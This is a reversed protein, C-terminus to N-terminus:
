RRKPRNTGNSRAAIIRRAEREGTLFAGHVTARYLEHTHEGAHLLRSGSPKALTVHDQSSSNVAAFSYAGLSFPDSNWGTRIARRPATASSGFITKLIPTIEQILQAETLSEVYAGQQGLGFTVLCNFDSFTRYNMFYNFRGRVPSQWGFYQTDTPWFAKDFIMFVKNIQGMGLVNISAKKEASLPPSIRVRNAKHVGLPLTEICYDSNFTMGGATVVVGTDSHSIATVQTNLRIDIGKALLEPIAKYGNPLIVDKGPYKSDDSYNRASLTELWGGSDFELDYSLHFLSLLDTLVTPDVIGLATALSEDPIARKMRTAVAALSAEFKKRGAGFTSETVENGSVGTVTISDDNTIFTRAKAEAALTAIPNGGDPGHIWGAGVDMPVGDTVDTWVRGGIRNRGELVTVAFGERTLRRAAALGAVGAGIVIVSTGTATATQAVASFMPIFSSAGTVAGAAAGQLLKRRLEDM